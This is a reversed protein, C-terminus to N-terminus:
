AARRASGAAAPDQRWSQRADVARADGDGAMALEVSGPEDQEAMPHAQRKAKRSQWVGTLVAYAVFLGLIVLAAFGRLQHWDYFTDM